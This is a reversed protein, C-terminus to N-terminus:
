VVDSRAPKKTFKLDFVIEDQRIKLWSKLTANKECPVSVQQGPKQCGVRPEPVMSRIKVGCPFKSTHYPEHYAVLKTETRGALKDEDVATLDWYPRTWVVTAYEALFSAVLKCVETRNWRYVFSPVASDRVGGSKGAHGVVAPSNMRSPSGMRVLSRMALSDNPEMSVVYRRAVRLM